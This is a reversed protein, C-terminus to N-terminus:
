GPDTSIYRFSIDYMQHILQNSVFIHVFEGLGRFSPSWDAKAAAPWHFLQDDGEYMRIQGCRSGCKGFMAGQM